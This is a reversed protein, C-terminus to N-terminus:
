QKSKKNTIVLTLPDVAQILQDYKNIQRGNLSAKIVEDRKKAFRMVHSNIYKRMEIEDKKKSDKDTKQSDSNKQELKLKAKKKVKMVNKTYELFATKCIEKQKSNLKVGKELYDVVKMTSLKMMQDKDEHRDQASSFAVTFFFIVSLLIRQIKM